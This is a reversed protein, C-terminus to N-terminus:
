VRDEDRYGLLDFSVVRMQQGGSLRSGRVGVNTQDGAPLQQLDMQLSCAQIVTNYWRQDWQSAGVINQRITGFITWPSQSCYAANKFTTSITGSVEPVEGLLVKLLTSKGCGVPGVVMTILGTRIDFNLNDLIPEGDVSWAASLARVIVCSSGMDNQGGVPELDILITVEPSHSIRCDTRETDLLYKQIRQFCNVVAMIDESGDVFGIMPQDLLFFLTLASFAM